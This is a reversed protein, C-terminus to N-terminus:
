INSVYSHLLGGFYFRLCEKELQSTLDTTKQNCFDKFFNIWWAIHSMCLFSWWGEIMQNQPLPVHSTLDISRQNCFFTQFFKGVM